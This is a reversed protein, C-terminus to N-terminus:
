AGRIRPCTFNFGYNKPIFYISPPNCVTYLLGKSKVFRLAEELTPFILRLEQSMDQSSVWGMLPDATLPDHTEFEVHWGKTKGKGSQMANKSSQYIRVRPM